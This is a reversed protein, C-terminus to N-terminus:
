IGLWPNLGRSLSVTDFSLKSVTEKLKGAILYFFNWIGFANLINTITHM